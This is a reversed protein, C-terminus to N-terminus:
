KVVVTKIIFKGCLGCGDDAAATITYHGAKVGSLDWVVKAGQGIIKGGSVKSYYTLVDYEPDVAIISVSIKKTDNLCDKNERANLSRCDAILETRSLVLDIVNSPSNYDDFNLKNVPYRNWKKNSYYKKVEERDCLIFFKEKSPSFIVQSVIDGRTTIAIGLDKDYYVYRGKSRGWMKEKRLKKYGIGTDKIEIPDKPIVRIQTVQGESINWDEDYEESCDGRSYSVYVVSYDMYFNSDSFKLSNKALLEIVDNRNSELLKIEKVKDLEALLSQAFGFGCM